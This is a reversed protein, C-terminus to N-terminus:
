RSLEFRLITSGIEIVSHHFLPARCTIRSGNVYTGNSSGLDRIFVLMLMAAGWVVILGNNARGVHGTAILLNAAAQALEQSVSVGVGDSGVM